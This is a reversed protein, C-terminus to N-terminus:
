LHVLLGYVIKDKCPIFTIQKGGYTGRNIHTNHVGVKDKAKQVISSTQTDKKDVFIIRPLSLFM